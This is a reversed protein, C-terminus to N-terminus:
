KALNIFIVIVDVYQNLPTLEKLRSTTIAMVIAKAMRHESSGHKHWVYLGYAVSAVAAVGGVIVRIKMTDTVKNVVSVHTLSLTHSVSLSISTTQTSPTAHSATFTGTV